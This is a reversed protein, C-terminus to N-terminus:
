FTHIISLLVLESIAQTFWKPVPRVARDILFLAIRHSFGAMSREGTIAYIAYLVTM